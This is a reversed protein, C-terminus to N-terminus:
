TMMPRSRSYSHFPVSKVGQKAEKGTWFGLLLLIGRWLGKGGNRFFPNM